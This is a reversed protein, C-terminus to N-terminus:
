IYRMAANDLDIHPRVMVNRSALTELFLKYTVHPAAGVFAGGVFIAVAEARGVREPPRLVWCDKVKNWDLRGGPHDTNFNSIILGEVRQFVEPTDDPFSSNSSIDANSRLQSDARSNNPFREAKTSLNTRRFGVYWPLWDYTNTHERSTSFMLGGPGSLLPEIASVEV